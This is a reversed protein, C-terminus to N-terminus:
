KRYAVIRWGVIQGVEGEFLTLTLANGEDRGRAGQSLAPTLARSGLARAIPLGSLRSAILL